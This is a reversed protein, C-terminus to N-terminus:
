AHLQTITHNFEQSYLRGDQLDLYHMFSLEQKRHLQTISVTLMENNRNMLVDNSGDGDGAFRHFHLIEKSGTEKYEKQFAQFWAKRKEIIDNSYLTVSSWIHAASADLELISKEQGDWRAEFLQEAQRIVLTFPEIKHLHIQEFADVPRPHDFVDLFILGRSKRYPPLSVHNVFGGNLLVMANGNEHLAMWTGGANGDKPFLLNGSAFKHWKPEEARLRVQKEDRNSTLFFSHNSVPIYTVTCM